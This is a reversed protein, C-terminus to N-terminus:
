ASCFTCASILSFGRTAQSTEQLGLSMAVSPVGLLPLAPFGWNFKQPLGMVNEPFFVFNLLIAPQFGCGKGWM